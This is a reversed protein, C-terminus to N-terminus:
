SFIFEPWNWEKCPFCVCVRCFVTYGGCKSRSGVATIVQRSSFGPYESGLLRSCCPAEVICARSCSRKCRLAARRPAARSPKAGVGAGERLTGLTQLARVCALSRPAYGEAERREGVGEGRLESARRNPFRQSSPVVKRFSAISCV